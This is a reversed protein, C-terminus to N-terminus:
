LAAVFIFIRTSFIIKESRKGFYQRRFWELQEKLYKVETQLQEIEKHLVDPSAVTATTM